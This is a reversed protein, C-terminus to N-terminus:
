RLKIATSLGCFYREILRLKFCNIVRLFSSNRRTRRRSQDCKWCLQGVTFNENSNGRFHNRRDRCLEISPSKKAPHRQRRTRTLPCKEIKIDRSIGFDCIPDFLANRYRPLTTIPDRSTLYCIAPKECSPLKICISLVVCHRNSFRKGKHHKAVQRHPNSPTQDGRKIQCLRRSTVFRFLYTKKYVVRM